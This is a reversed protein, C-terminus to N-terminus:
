NGFIGVLNRTERDTDHGNNDDSTDHPYYEVFFTSYHLDRLDKKIKEIKKPNRKRKRYHTVSKRMAIMGM